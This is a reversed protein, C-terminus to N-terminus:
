VVRGSACAVAVALAEHEAADRGGAGPTSASTPPAGPQLAGLEAAREVMAAIVDESLGAARLQGAISVVSPPGGRRVDGDCSGLVWELARATGGAARIEALLGPDPSNVIVALRPTYVSAARHVTFIVRGKGCDCPPMGFGKRIRESCVPCEFLIEAASATGPFRIRVQNHEACTPAYPERLVGCDHYGVFQLQRWASKGCRCVVEDTKAIRKCGQCIWVRPFPEVAVGLVPNVRLLMVPLGRRLDEVYGGDRGDQWPSAAKLLARRLAEADVPTPLPERWEKVRWIRGKLDVTQGPLFGFLVQSAGRQERM